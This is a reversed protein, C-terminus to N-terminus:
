PQTVEGQMEGTLRYLRGLRRVERVSYGYRWCLVRFRIEGPGHRLLIGILSPWRRWGRLVAAAIERGTMPAPETM